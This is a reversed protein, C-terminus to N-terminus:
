PTDERGLGRAVSQLARELENVARQEVVRIGVSADREILRAVKSKAHEYQAVIDRLSQCLRLVEAPTACDCPESWERQRYGCQVTHLSDGKGFGDSELEALQERQEIASLVRSVLDGTVM